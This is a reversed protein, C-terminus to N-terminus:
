ESSDSRVNVVEGPIWLGSNAFTTVLPFQGLKGCGKSARGGGRIKGAGPRLAALTPLANGTLVCPGIRRTPGEGSDLEATGLVFEFDGTLVNMWRLRVGRAALRVEGTPEPEADHSHAVTHWMRPIGPHRYDKRRSHGGSCPDESTAADSLQGAVRGADILNVSRAPRGEDDVTASVGEGARGQEPVAPGDSVSLWSPAVQEGLRSGLYTTGSAVIDAELPHGVLEHFFPGARGSEFVVDCPGAPLVGTPLAALRRVEEIAAYVRELNGAGDHCDWHVVESCAPDEAAAVELTCARRQDMTLTDATGVAVRQDYRAWTLVVSPDAALETLLADLATGPLAHPAPPETLVQVAQRTAQASLRIVPSRLLDLGDAFVHDVDQGRRSETCMGRWAQTERRPVQGAAYRHVTRLGNDAFITAPRSM